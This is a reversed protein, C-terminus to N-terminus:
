EGAAKRAARRYDWWVALGILIGTPISVALWVALTVLINQRGGFAMYLAIAGFLFFSNLLMSLSYLFVFWGGRNAIDKTEDFIDPYLWLPLADLNFPPVKNDPKM